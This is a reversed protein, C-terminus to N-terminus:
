QMNEVVARTAETWRDDLMERCSVWQGAAFMMVFIPLATEMDWLHLVGNSVEWDSATVSATTGSTLQM